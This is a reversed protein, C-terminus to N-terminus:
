RGGCLARPSVASCARAPALMMGSTAGPWCAANDMDPAYRERARRCRILTLDSPHCRTVCAADHTCLCAAGYRWRPAVGGGAAEGALSAEPEAAAHDSFRAARAAAPPTQPWHPRPRDRTSAPACHSRSTRRPCATSRCTRDTRRAYSASSVCSGVEM